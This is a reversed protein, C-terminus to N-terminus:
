REQESRPSLRRRSERSPHEGSETTDERDLISRPGEDQSDRERDHRSRLSRMTQVAERSIHQSDRADELLRICMDLFRDTERRERDLDAQLRQVVWRPIVDGRVFAMIAIALFSLPLGLRELLPLFTEV